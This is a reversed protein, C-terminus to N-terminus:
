PRKGAPPLGEGRAAKMAALARQYDLLADVERLRAEATQQERMNVILLQSDGQEFRIREGDELARALTVENRSAEFRETAARVASHADQVEASIVDGAYGQQIRAREAQAYAAQARGRMLRTQLPLEIMLSLELVPQSLDPRMPMSRGLDASGALQLDFAPRLQNNAYTHEIDSSKAQLEFRRLEVRNEKALALDRALLGGTPVPEPLAAPLQAADPLLPRGAADRLLLSLEIAAQELGRQATTVQAKRQEIARANDSREYPALDGHAVREALGEDREVAIRLLQEAISVRQGAAVWAWYRQAALRAVEVRQGEM